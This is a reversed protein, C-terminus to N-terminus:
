NVGFLTLSVSIWKQFLGEYMKRRVEDRIKKRAMTTKRYLDSNSCEGSLNNVIDFHYSIYCWPVDEKM